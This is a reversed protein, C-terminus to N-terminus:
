CCPPVRLVKVLAVMINVLGICDQRSAEAWEALTQQRKTVVATWGQGFTHCVEVVELVPTM